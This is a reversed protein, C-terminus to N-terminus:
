GGQGGPPTQAYGNWAPQSGDYISSQLMTTKDFDSAGPYVTSDNGSTPPLGGRWAGVGARYQVQPTNNAYISSSESFASSPMTMFQQALSEQLIQNIPQSINNSLPRSSKRGWSGSTTPRYGTAEDLDIAAQLRQEPTALPLPSSQRATMPRNPSLPQLENPQPTFASKYFGPLSPLIKPTGNFRPEFGSSGIPAFVEHATASHMGYSTENSSTNRSSPPELLSDVMRHMDTDMSQHSDSAAVSEDGTEAIGNTAAHGAYGNTRMPSTYSPASGPVRDEMRYEDIPQISSAYSRISSQVRTPSTASIGEEVFAFATTGTESTLALPIQKKLQLSLGCLLINLVRAQMEVHPLDRKIDLDTIRPKLEGKDDVYLNCEPSLSSNRLPQFGVTSEDEELLYSVSALEEVPFYNALRTLVDAYMMWLEKAHVQISATGASTLILGAGSALWVSYQRLAPLVRAAVATIRENPRDSKSGGEGNPLEEGSATDELEPLLVQLLVFMMRVNFALCFLYSKIIEPKAGDGQEIEKNAHRRHNGFFHSVRSDKV